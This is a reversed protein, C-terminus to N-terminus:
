GADKHWITRGYAYSIVNEMNNIICISTCFMKNIDLVFSDRSYIPHLGVRLCERNHSQNGFKDINSNIFDSEKMVLCM